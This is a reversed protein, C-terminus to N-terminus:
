RRSMNWDCTKVIEEKVRIHRLGLIAVMSWTSADVCLVFRSKMEM